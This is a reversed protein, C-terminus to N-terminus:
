SGPAPDPDPPASAPETMIAVITREFSRRALNLATERDTSDVPIELIIHDMFERTALALREARLQKDPDGMEPAVILVDLHAAINDSPHM